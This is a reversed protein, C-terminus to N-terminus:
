NCLPYDYWQLRQYFPSQKRRRYSAGSAGAGRSLKILEAVSSYEAYIKTKVPIGFTTLHTIDFNHQITYM